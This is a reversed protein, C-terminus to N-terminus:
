YQGRVLNPPDEGRLVAALQAHVVRYARELHGPVSGGVHPTLLLNPASWLPHDAPLPEPDVVDVVARLRRSSLETVLADTVVVPGRAANVLVAGDPMAALFAADVLGRTEDTLPLLLVTVDHDGLLAPLESTAHVGDRARRGVRTITAVDFTALRRATQEALDGAGVLLIRKGTLTDTVHQDWHAADQNRVFTPIERLIALLGALVWEATVGGHAGQCDALAVGDPMRGVWAEAGATLLQVLRVEPCQALLSLSDDASLFGPVFVAAGAAEPPLEARPDYRVLRLGDLDALAREGEEDPVLVTLPRAALAQATSPNQATSM